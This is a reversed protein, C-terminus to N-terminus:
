KNNEWSLKFDGDSSELILPSGSKLIMYEKQFASAICMGM